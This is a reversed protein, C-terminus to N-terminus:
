AYITFLYASLPSGRFVGKSNEAKGGIEGKIKPGLGTKRHGMRIIKILTSPIGRVYAVTWMIDRNTAEFSKPLDVLM